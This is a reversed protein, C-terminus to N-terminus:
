TTAAKSTIEKTYLNKYKKKPNSSHKSKNDDNYINSITQNQLNQRELLKSFSKSYKGSDM